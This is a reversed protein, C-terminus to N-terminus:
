WLRTVGYADFADESSVIPMHEHLSQAILLRDFPDRHGTVPFPLAAVRATHAMTIGLVVFGNLAIQQPILVDFPQGLQLKSLSTKIAIEWGSAISVYSTNAVDEILRRADRSLKPSGDIFWLFAHTDLLLNM